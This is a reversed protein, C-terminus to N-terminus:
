DRSKSIGLVQKMLEYMCFSVAVQPMARYYNLSMGRFVGGALGARTYVGWLVQILRPATHPDAVMGHVQMNRRVVDLPYSVTQAVAGAMGGCVLTAPITLVVTGSGDLSLKTAAASFREMMLSKLVEYSYFAVGAYPIMGLVTPVYGRYLGKVGGEERAVSTLTHWVGRYRSEFVQYALRARAVDLPYTCTVATIGTFSGALLKNTHTDARFYPKLLRKYQEYSMFQIAAYPFIRVMMAGNGKFYGRLGEKRYIATFGSVVSHNLYHIHQAQLLIKLRDLPATTIKACMGAVGGALFSKAIYELRSGHKKKQCLWLVTIKRVVFNITSAAGDKLFKDVFNM